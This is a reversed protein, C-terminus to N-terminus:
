MRIALRNVGLQPLTCINLSHLLQAYPPSSFNILTTRDIIVMFGHRKQNSFDLAALSFLIAVGDIRLKGRWLSYCVYRTFLM